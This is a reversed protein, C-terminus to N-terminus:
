DPAIRRALRRDGPSKLFALLVPAAVIKRSGRSARWNARSGARLRRPAGSRGARMDAGVARCYSSACPRQCCSCAPRLLLCPGFSGYLFIEVMGSCGTRRQEQERFSTPQLPKSTYDYM